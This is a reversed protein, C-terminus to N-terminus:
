NTYFLALYIFAFSFGTTMETITATKAAIQYEDDNKNFIMSKNKDIYYKKMVHKVFINFFISNFIILFDFAQFSM